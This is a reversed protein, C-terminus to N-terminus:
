RRRLWFQCGGKGGGVVVLFESVSRAEWEDDDGTALADMVLALVHHPLDGFEVTPETPASQLVVGGRPGVEAADTVRTSSPPSALAVVRRTGLLRRPPPPTQPPPAPSAPAQKRPPPPPTAAEGLM